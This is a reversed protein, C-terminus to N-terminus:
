SQVNYGSYFILRESLNINYSKLQGTLLTIYNVKTDKADPFTHQIKYILNENTGGMGEQKISISAILLRKHEGHIELVSSNRSM